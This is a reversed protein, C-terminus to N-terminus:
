CLCRGLLMLINMTQKVSRLDEQTLESAHPDLIEQICVGKLDPFMVTLTLFNTVSDRQNSFERFNYVSESLLKKWCINLATPKLEDM